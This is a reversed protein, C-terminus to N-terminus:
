KRQKEGSRTSGDLPRNVVNLVGLTMPPVVSDQRLSPVANYPLYTCVTTGTDEGFTASIDLNSSFVNRLTFMAKTFSIAIIHSRMPMSMQSTMSAAAVLGNPKM